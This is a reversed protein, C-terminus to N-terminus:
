DNEDNPGKKNRQKEKKFHKKILDQEIPYNLGYYYETNHYPPSSINIAELEEYSKDGYTLWISELIFLETENFDVNTSSLENIGEFEYKRYEYALSANQPGHPSTVFINNCINTNDQYVTIWGSYLYCLQQLKYKNFKDKALFYNAIDTM